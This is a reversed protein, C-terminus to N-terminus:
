PPPHTTCSCAQWRFSYILLNVFGCLVKHICAAVDSTLGLTPAARLRPLDQDGIFETRFATLQPSCKFKHVCASSRSSQHWPKRDLSAWLDMENSKLTAPHSTKNYTLTYSWISKPIHDFLTTYLWIPLNGYHYVPQAQKKPHTPKHPANYCLFNRKIKSM